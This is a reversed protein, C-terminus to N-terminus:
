VRQGKVAAHHLPTLGNQDSKDCEYGKDLLLQVANVHGEKAAYHLASRGKADIDDTVIRRDILVELVSCHGVEAALHLPGRNMPTSYFSTTAKNLASIGIYLDFNEKRQLFRLFADKTLKEDCSRLHITLYQTAYDLLPNAELRERLADASTCTDDGFTDFALYTTCGIALVSGPAPPLVNKRLLYQQVTFHALRVTGSKDDIVLLGACINRLVSPDPIFEDDLNSTNPEVAVAIQLENITLTRHAETLWCLTNLALTVSNENQAKLSGIIRDYTPDMPNDKSSTRKLEKIERRLHGVTPQRCLHEINLSIFLFM